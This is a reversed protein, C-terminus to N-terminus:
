RSDGSGKSEPSNYQYYDDSQELQDNKKVAKITKICKTKWIRRFWTVTNLIYWKWFCLDKRKRQSFDSYETEKEM